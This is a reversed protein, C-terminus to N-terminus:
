LRRLCRWVNWHFRKKIWARCSISKRPLEEALKQALLAGHATFSIVEAKM